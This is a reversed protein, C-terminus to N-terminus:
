SSVFKVELKKHNDWAKKVEETEWLSELTNGLEPAYVREVEALKTITKGNRWIKITYDDSYTLLIHVEVEDRYKSTNRITFSLGGNQSEHIPLAQFVDAGACILVIPHIQSKITKAINLRHQKSNM